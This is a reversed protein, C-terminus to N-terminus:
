SVVVLLQKLIKNYLILKWLFPGLFITKGMVFHIFSCLGKYVLKTNDAWSLVHTSGAMFPIPQFIQNRLQFVNDQKILLLTVQKGELGCILVYILHARGSFANEQIRM